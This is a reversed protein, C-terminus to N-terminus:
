HFSLMEVRFAFLESQFACLLRNGSLDPFQHGFAILDGIGLNSHFDASISANRFFRWDQLFSLIVIMFCPVLVLSFYPFM